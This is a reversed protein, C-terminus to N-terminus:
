RGGGKKSRRKAAKDAEEQRLRDEKTVALFGPLGGANGGLEEATPYDELLEDVDFEVDEIVGTGQTLAPNVADALLSDISFEDDDPQPVGEAPREGDDEMREERFVEGSAVPAMGPKQRTYPSASGGTRVPRAEQPARPAKYHTSAKEAGAPVHSHESLVLRGFGDLIELVSDNYCIHGPALPKIPSDVIWTPKGQQERENIAEALVNPTERNKAAKVGLRIILLDFPVALDVLTVFHESPREREFGDREILVDADYVSSAGSLWATVLTADAVVRADWKTGMRFAVYRLHRRLDYGSATIWLNQKTMGLLPSSDASEVNLLVKWVRKVNAVLDRKFMCKCNQTGGGPWMVGGGVDVMMPVVGRGQCDPCDEDGNGVPFDLLPHEQNVDPRDDKKKNDGSISM